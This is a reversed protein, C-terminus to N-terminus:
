SLANRYAFFGSRHLISEGHDRWIRNFAMTDALYYDWSSANKDRPSWSVGEFLDSEAFFMGCDTPFIDTGQFLAYQEGFRQYSRGDPYCMDFVVGRYGQPRYREWYDKLLQPLNPHLLTDDDLFYITGARRKVLERLALGKQPCGWCSLALDTGDPHGVHTPIKTAICSRVFVNPRDCDISPEKADEVVWWDWSIDKLTTEINQLLVELNRPRSM